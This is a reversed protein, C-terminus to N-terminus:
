QLGAEKLVRRAEACDSEAVHIHMLPMGDVPIGLAAVSEGEVVHRIGADGLVNRAVALLEPRHTTFVAAVAESSGNEGVDEM